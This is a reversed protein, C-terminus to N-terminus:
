LRYTEISVVLRSEVDSVMAKERRVVKVRDQRELEDGNARSARVDGESREHEVVTGWSLLLLVLIADVWFCSAFGDRSSFSEARLLNKSLWLHTRRVVRAGSPDKCELVIAM